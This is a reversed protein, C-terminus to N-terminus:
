KLSKNTSRTDIKKFLINFDLTIENGTKMAGMLFTPPKVEYDTMNLKKNATCTVTEDKNVFCYVEMTIERTVGAINLNGVANVLYKDDRKDNINASTLEFVINKFQNTKLAKYANKDLAKKNSKLSEVPLSFSLATIAYLEDGQTKFKAEGNLAETNMTWDSHNSTGSLKVAIEKSEIISYVTQAQIYNTFLLTFALAALLFLAKGRIQLQLKGFPFVSKQNQVILTNPKM